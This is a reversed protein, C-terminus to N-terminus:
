RREKMWRDIEENSYRWQGGAKHAPDSQILVEPPHGKLEGSEEQVLYNVSKTFLHINWGTIM